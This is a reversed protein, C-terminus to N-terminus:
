LDEEDSSNDSSNISADSLCAAEIELLKEIVKMEQENPEGHPEESPDNLTEYGCNMETGEEEQCNENCYEKYSSHQQVSFNHRQPSVSKSHKCSLTERGKSNNQNNFNVNARSVPSPNGHKDAFVDPTSVSHRLHRCGCKNQDSNEVTLPCAEVHEHRQGMSTKRKSFSASKQRFSAQQQHATCSTHDSQVGNTLPTACMECECRVGNTIKKRGLVPSHHNYVRFAKDKSLLRTVKAKLHLIEKERAKLQKDRDAM